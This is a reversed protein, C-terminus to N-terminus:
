KYRLSLEDFTDDEIVEIAKTLADNYRNFIRFFESYDWLNNAILAKIQNRMYKESQEIGLTDREVGNEEAFSLFDDFFDENIRFRKEFVEVTSYKKTLKERSKDVYELAFRSLIGKRLLKSYYDSIRTTDFPIFIDPMIGGGGYVIRKNPTYYKLSDPFEISDAYMFEGHYFRNIIDKRYEDYGEEYPKQICRGTPTHYRATTLRIVSGDPLNFPRQVLGKGFSRRGIILGRDSDQIAGGVIESASASGEDLLVIIKGKEFSGKSSALYKRVSSRLGETYVVLKDKELFEDSIDIAINLYGGPNGTLDFVLHKMGKKKMKLLAEKFEILSTKAFRNMKMYGIEDTVMYNSVVSNIPIKDRTIIFDLLEKEGRRFIAVEVKSGKEGRLKDRVFQTNVKEGTAEEGDIKVIKDGASIGVKESPGGPIPSVVVITDKLVNFKIGVGEFNGRLPENTEALEEKSIYSSHPDLEKLMDVIAKEVIEPLDVSDVYAYRIIQIVKSFKRDLENPDYEQAKLQTKNLCFLALLIFILKKLM